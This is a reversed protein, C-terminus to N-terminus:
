GARASVNGEACTRALFSAHVMTLQNWPGQSKKVFILKAEPRSGEESVREMQKTFHCVLSMAQWTASGKTSSASLVLAIGVDDSQGFSDATCDFCLRTLIRISTREPTDGLMYM